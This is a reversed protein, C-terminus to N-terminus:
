HGTRGHGGVPIPGEQLGTGETNPPAGVLVPDSDKLFSLFPQSSTVEPNALLVHLYAALDEAMDADTMGEKYM